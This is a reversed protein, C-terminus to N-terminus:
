LGGPNVTGPHANLSYTFSYDRIFEFNATGIQRKHKKDRTVDVDRAGATAILFAPLSPYSTRGSISGSQVVTVDTYARREQLESVTNHRPRLINKAGGEGIIEVSETLTLNAVSEAANNYEAQIQIQVYQETAYQLPGSPLSIVRAQPGVLCGSAYMFHSTSFWNVGDTSYEIGADLRPVLMATKLAEIQSTIDAPGSGSLWIEVQMDYILSTQYTNIERTSVDMSVPKASGAATYFSGYRFRFSTAM